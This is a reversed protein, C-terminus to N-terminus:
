LRASGAMARRYTGEILGYPEDVPLFVENPNDLGFPTLDVLLCHKNPLAFTIEDIAPVEALAAEGMANLTHQVSLSHHAAFAGVISRRTAHWAQDFDLTTGSYKWIALVSTAFIRDTAEKLTTYEDRIYGTFESHTTKLVLLDRIGSRITTSGRAADIMTTRVEPGHKEFTHDNLRTWLNEDIAIRTRHLNPNRELFRAALRMAFEEIAGVPAKRALAYVTNKMTDTPLIRANSGTIYCEDYDGEFAIQVNLDRIEHRDSHREVKVLRVRAKGYQNWILEASM